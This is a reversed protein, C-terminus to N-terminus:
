RKIKPTTKLTPKVPGVEHTCFERLLQSKHDNMVDPHRCIINIYIVRTLFANLDLEKSFDLKRIFRISSSLRPGLEELSRILKEKKSLTM